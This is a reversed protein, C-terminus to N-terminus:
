LEKKRFFGFVIEQLEMAIKLRYIILFYALSLFASKFAIALLKNEFSPLLFGIIGLGIITFLVKLNENTFPMLKFHKHVYWLLMTNYFFSSLATATAAGNMGFLPIFVNQLIIALVALTILLGAGWKYKESTFLIAANLGTAMNYLAATSLIVVVMWASQYGEPLFSLLDRINANVNIFLFGGIIFMYLSSKYYIDDIEKMNKEEWAFAIKASAIKDFANLPAEIITSVFAVVTYIGVFSLAMYKGMVISDFYKLGMSSVSAFWLLLGYSILRFFKKEKFTVWDIKIGPKDFLFVYALLILLQIVYIGVFSLIFQELNIWKLYYISVVAITMLRVGIDNVYTPITSKFNANCYISIVSIFSICFILPFVYQFFALFMPSEKMYQHFIFDKMLLIVLSTLAFGILPFLLMFGFYGHHKKDINKFVPFFRTTANGIGLPVFMAVVLSFSYLLRTLGLEEKSLFYPQIVILNLFGIALGIYVAITNKIGQRKIVGM